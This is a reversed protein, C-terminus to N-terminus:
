SCTGLDATGPAQAIAEFPFQPRPGVVVEGVRDVVKIRSFDVAVLPSVDLKTFVVQVEASAVQIESESFLM